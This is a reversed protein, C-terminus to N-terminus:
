QALNGDVGRRGTGRPYAIEIMLDKEVGSDPQEGTEL